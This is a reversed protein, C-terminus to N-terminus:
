MSRTTRAQAPNSQDENRNTATSDGSGHRPGPGRAPVTFQPPVVVGVADQTSLLGTAWYRGAPVSVRAIGHRFVSSGAVRSTNDASTLFVSDGNDPRGALDTGHITLTHM